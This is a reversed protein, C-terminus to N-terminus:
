EREGSIRALGSEGLLGVLGGTWDQTGQFDHKYIGLLVLPDPISRRRIVPIDSLILIEGKTLQM